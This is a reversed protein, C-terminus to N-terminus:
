YGIYGDAEEDWYRSRGEDDYSWGPQDWCQRCLGDRLDQQTECDNCFEHEEEGAWEESDEHWGEDEDPERLMDAGPGAKMRQSLEEYNDMWSSVIASAERRDIGIKELEMPAGMMNIRGSAQLDFLLQYWRDWEPNIPTSKLVSWGVSVAKKLVARDNM